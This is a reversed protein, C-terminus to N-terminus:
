NTNIEVPCKRTGSRRDLPSRKSSCPIHGPTDSLDHSYIEAFRASPRRRNNSFTCTCHGQSLFRFPLFYIEPWVQPQCQGRKLLCNWTPWNIILISNIIRKMYKINHITKKLKWLLFYRARGREFQGVVFKPVFVFGFYEFWRSSNESSFQPGIRYKEDSNEPYKLFTKVVCLSVPISAPLSSSDRSDQLGHPCLARNM